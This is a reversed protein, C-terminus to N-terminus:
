RRSGSRGADHSAALPPAVLRYFVSANDRRTETFGAKELVRQSARNDLTTDALIARAGHDFATVSAARLAETALGAGRASAVLGYGLEVQGAADPPGFFGIGGVALRDARRRVVYLTFVPDVGEPDTVALDRLLDVEDEFPYEPHWRDAEDPRDAVIRAAEAPDLPHLILRETTIDM